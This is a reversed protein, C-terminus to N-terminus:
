CVMYAVLFDTSFVAISLSFPSEVIRFHLLLLFAFVQFPLLIQYGAPQQSLVVRSFVMGAPAAIIFLYVTLM